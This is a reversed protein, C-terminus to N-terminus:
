ATGRRLVFHARTRVVEAGGSLQISGGTAGDITFAAVRRTGRRDMTVGARAAVEPWLIALQREDYSALVRRAVYLSGDSHREVGLGDVVAAVAARWEAARAALALLEGGFSPRVSTVAPLLDLRVRNRLHRRSLNSPDEAFAIGREAVYALVEARRTGLLPRAVDTRAYLGALGRPGADRLIRMFVTEVQDDATHATAIVAAADRAVARLFKWRQERWHEETKADMGAEGAFCRLGLEDCRRRVLQAAAASAPGTRHDFTAVILDAEAERAADLMVMSDAGGSVALVVRNHGRLTQLVEDGITRSKRTM